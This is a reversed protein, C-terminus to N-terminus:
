ETSIRNSGSRLAITAKYSSTIKNLAANITTIQHNIDNEKLESNESLEMIKNEKEIIDQRMLTINNFSEIIIDHFNLIYFSGPDTFITGSVLLNELVQDFTEYLLLWGTTNQLFPTRVFKVLNVPFCRHWIRQLKILFSDRTCTNKQSNQSIELFM